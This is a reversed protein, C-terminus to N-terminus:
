KPWIASLGAIVRRLGSTRKPGEGSGGWRGPTCFSDVPKESDGLPITQAAHSARQRGLPYARAIQRNAGRGFQKPTEFVNGTISYSGQLV